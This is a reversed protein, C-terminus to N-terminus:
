HLLGVQVMAIQVNSMLGTKLMFPYNSDQKVNFCVM